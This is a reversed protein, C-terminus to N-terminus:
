FISPGAEIVSGENKVQAVKPGNKTFFARFECSRQEIVAILSCIVAIFIDGYDKKYIM